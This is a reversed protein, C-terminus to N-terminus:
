LVDSLYATMKAMAQAKKVETKANNLNRLKQRLTQRELTPYLNLLKNIEQEGHQQLQEITEELLSKSQTEKETKIKIQQRTQEELFDRIAQEDEGRLCKGIFMLHRKRALNTTIKQYDLLSKLTVEDIPLAKIKDQPLEALEQGFDKLALSDQRQAKKSFYEPDYEKRNFKKIAM